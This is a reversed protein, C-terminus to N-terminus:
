GLPCRSVCSATRVSSVSSMQVCTHVCVVAGWLSPGACHLRQPRGGARRMDRPFSPGEHTLDSQGSAPRVRSAGTAM